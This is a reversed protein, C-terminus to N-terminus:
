PAVPRVSGGPSVLFMPEYPGDDETRVAITDRRTTFRVYRQEGPSRAVMSGPLAAGPPVGDVPRSSGDLGVRLLAVNLLDGWCEGGRPCGTMRLYVATDGEAGVIRGGFSEWLSDAAEEAAIPSARRADVDLLVLRARQETFRWRGGDPFANIGTPRQFVDHEILAVALYTEGLRVVQTPTATQEEPGHTCSALSLAILVAGCARGRLTQGQEAGM